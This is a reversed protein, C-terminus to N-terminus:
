RHRKNICDLLNEGMVIILQQLHCDNEEKSIDTKKPVGMYNSMYQLHTIM